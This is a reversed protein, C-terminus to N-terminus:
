LEGAALAKRAEALSTYIGACMPRIEDTPQMLDPIMIPACGATKAAKIGNIADEFVYCDSPDMNLAAAAALFIDPDPKGRKVLNGGVIAAFYDKLGTLKLNSEIQPVISSSAIACPVDNEKFFRLIEEVGPKMQISRSCKEAVRKKCERDIDAATVGNANELPFYKSIVALGLEGSTGTIEYTFAEPLVTNMDAALEKWTEQYVSETDFLLGDMDFIAGKKM